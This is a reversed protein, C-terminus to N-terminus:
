INETNILKRLMNMATLSTKIINRERNEGFNFKEAVTINKSCVAIWTTGVPKDISGGDPGAIGSTAISYNTNYIKLINEAMKEVVQRSVAGHMTILEEPVNLINKKIENSYAIVSGAYYRSSGPVSTIRHALHGGTCSEATSLTLNNKILLKGITEEPMEDDYAYIFEPIIKNLEDLKDSILKNLHNIDSGEVSLRLRIIGPQPLYALHINQKNLGTEWTTLKESLKAEFAGQTMVVKHVIYTKNYIKKLGPIIEEKMITMMEFPVGPISIIVKKNKTFWMGPATGVSNPLLRCKEPVMAQNYNNDILETIGRSVLMKKINDLTVESFVLKTKFFKCLASKTIDDKTPGLGGTLIVIDVDNIASNLAKIIHENQDGISTIRFVNIGIDNLQRSIFASNSDLIQGILIEDGITIIEANM